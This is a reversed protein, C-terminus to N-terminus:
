PTQQDRTRTLYTRGAARDVDGPRAGLPYDGLTMGSPLVAQYIAAAHLDEAVPDFVPPGADVTVRQVEVPVTLGRSHAAAQVAAIYTATFADLDAHWVATVAERATHIDDLQDEGAETVVGDPGVEVAREQTTLETEAEEHLQGLGWGSFLEVPDLLLRVPVTRYGTLDDGATGAVVQRILAAEWSGPCGALLADEGGLNAAVSTIVRCLLVGMDVETVQGTDPDVPRAAATLASIAIAVPDPPAGIM